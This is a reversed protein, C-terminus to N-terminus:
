GKKTEKYIIKELDRVSESYLTLFQLILNYVLIYFFYINVFNKM